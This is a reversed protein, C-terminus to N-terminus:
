MECLIALLLGVQPKQCSRGVRTPSASPGHQTVPPPALLVFPRILWSTEDPEYSTGRVFMVMIDRIARHMSKFDQIVM